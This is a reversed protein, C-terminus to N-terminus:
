KADFNLCLYPNKGFILCCGCKDKQCMANELAQSDSIESGFLPLGSFDPRNKAFPENVRRYCFRSLQVLFVSGWFIPFFVRLVLPTLV